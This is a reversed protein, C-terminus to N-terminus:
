IQKSPPGKKAFFITMVDTLGSQLKKIFLTLKREQGNVVLAVLLLGAIYRTVAM